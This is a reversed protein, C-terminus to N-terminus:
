RKFSLNLRIIETDEPRDFVRGPLLRQILLRVAGFALASLFAYVVFLGTGLFLNVMTVTWHPEPQAPSTESWSIETEYRVRNLLTAADQGSTVGSVFVVLTGSRKAFALPRAPDGTGNLNFLREFDRLREAAIQPTPYNFLLLTAEARGLRYRGAGAEAGYAFGAWDGPALPAVEALAIPGLLYRDSGEVFGERPLYRPLTPLSPQERSREALWAAVGELWRDTNHVGVLGETMVFYNGQHFMFRFLTRPDNGVRYFIAAEGVEVPKAPEVKQRLVTFAGYAGSRDQMTYVTLRIRWVLPPNGYVAQEARLAGYERLLAAQEGALRELDTADAKEWTLQQQGRLQAPLLPAQAAAALPWALLLVGALFLKLRARPLVRTVM